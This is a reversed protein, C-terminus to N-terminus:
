LLFYPSYNFGIPILCHQLFFPLSYNFGILSDINLDRNNIHHSTLFLLFVNLYNKWFFSFINLFIIINQTHFELYCWCFRLTPTHIIAQLINWKIHTPPPIRLDM